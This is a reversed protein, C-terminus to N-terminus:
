SSANKLADLGEKDMDHEKPKWIKFALEILTREGTMNLRLALFEGDEFIGVNRTEDNRDQDVKLDIRNSASM